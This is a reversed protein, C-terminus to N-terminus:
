EEKEKLYIKLANIYPDIEMYVMFLLLTLIFVGVISSFYFYHNLLLYIPIAVIVAIGMKVGDFFVFMFLLMVFSLWSKQIFFWSYGILSLIKAFESIVIVLIILLGTWLGKMDKM